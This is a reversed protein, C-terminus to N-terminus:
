LAFPHMEPANRTCKSHLRTCKPHMELANLTCKSHVRTCKPHMQFETFYLHVRKTGSYRGLIGTQVLKSTSM